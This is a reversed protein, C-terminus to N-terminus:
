AVTIANGVTTEGLSAMLAGRARAIRSKITGLECDCVQAIREYSTGEILMLLIKRKDGDLRTIAESVEAARVSWEQAPQVVQRSVVTEIDDCLVFRRNIRYKSCYSNRVITFLWSKMSTGPQFQDLNALAKLVADQVLDDTDTQTREFTRAFRRVAPMLALIETELAASAPETMKM